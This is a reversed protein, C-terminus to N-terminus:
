LATFRFGKFSSYERRQNLRDLSDSALNEATRRFAIVEKWADRQQRLGFAGLEDTPFLFGCEELLTARDHEGILEGLSIEEARELNQLNLYELAM